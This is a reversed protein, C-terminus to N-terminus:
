TGGVALGHERPDSAWTCQGANGPLYKLCAIANIRGPPPVTAPMAVKGRLANLMGVAVGLGAAEQGSGAV